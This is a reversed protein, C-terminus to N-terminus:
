KKAGVNYWSGDETLYSDCILKNKKGNCWTVSGNSNLILIYDGNQVLAKPISASRKYTIKKNKKMNYSYVVNKGINTFLSQNYFYTFAETDEEDFKLIDTSEKKNVDYAFVYTHTDEEETKFNIGIITNGDNGLGLSYSISGSLNTPVTEHTSINVQLLPTYPYTSATKAIYLLGDNAIIADQIGTGSYIQKYKKTEFDYINVIGANEIEILYDKTGDSCLKINQVHYGPTFLVSKKKTELNIMTVSQMTDNSWLILNNKYCLFNKEKTTDIVKEISGSEYDTKLIANKTLLYFSNSDPVAKVDFIETYTNNSLSTIALAKSSSTYEPDIAVKYVTGDKAGMVISNNVKKATVIPSANKPLQYNGISISSAMVMDKSIANSFLEYNGSGKSELYYLVNDSSSSAIIPSNVTLTALLKTKTSVNFIYISNDKVGAFLNSGYMTPQKLGQNYSLKTKQEGSQMDYISFNGSTSYFAVTKESDSTWIYNVINTSSKLKTEVTWNSTKIFEAGDISSTGVILYTGKASFSITTITDSYKKQFKKQLKKWDWVTVINNAAGDTEYVAIDNGNPSCSISKIWLNSVQYHEGNGDNNWRILFGDESATFFTDPSGKVNAAEIGTIEAQHSQQTIHSQASLAFVMMLSLVSLVFKKM